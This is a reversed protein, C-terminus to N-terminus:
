LAFRTETRIFFGVRFVKLMNTFIYYRTLGIKRKIIEIRFLFTLVICENPYKEIGQAIETQFSHLGLNIIQYTDPLRSM